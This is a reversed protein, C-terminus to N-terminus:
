HGSRGEMGHVSYLQSAVLTPYGRPMEFLESFTGGEKM